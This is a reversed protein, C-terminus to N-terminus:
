EHVAEETLRAIDEKLEAIRADAQTIRTKVSMLYADTKQSDALTERAAFPFQRLMSEIEEMIEDCQALYDQATQQLIKEERRPNFHDFIEAALTYDETLADALKKAEAMLNTSGGSMDMSLELEIPISITNARLMKYILKMM